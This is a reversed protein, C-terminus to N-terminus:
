LQYVLSPNTQLGFRLFTIDVTPISASIPTPILQKNTGLNPSKYPRLGTNMAAKVKYIGTNTAAHINLLTM